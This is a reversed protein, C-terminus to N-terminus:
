NQPKVYIISLDDQYILRWDPNAELYDLLHDRSRTANMEEENMLLFNKSLWSLKLPRPRNKVMILKIDHQIIKESVKNEDWFEYYEALISHGQYSAQPGRGDIFLKKEPYVWILYGGWGFSNLINYNQYETQQKLFNTAACPYLHRNPHDKVQGECFHNFPDNTVVASNILSATTLIFAFFLLSRTIIKFALWKEMDFLKLQFYDIIFSSILPLSAVFFLPFNRRSKVALILFILTIGLFWPDIQRGIKKSTQGLYLCLLVLTACIYAFQYYIYPYSWQPLWESIHNLYFTDRYGFLFSYLELFYPTVLTSSIAALSVILGTTIQKQSLRFESSLGRWKTIRQGINIIWFLVITLIGALFGAHLCSWLYLWPILWLLKTWHPQRRYKELIILTVLLFLTTVMQIRIGIHPAIALAGAIELAMILGWHWKEKLITKKLWYNLLFFTAVFILAFIGTLIIYGLQTYTEYILVNSLWEHDIWKEGALPYNINNIRPLEMTKVIQEGTKLHWGLDPDLYSFSQRWFLAALFLYFVAWLIM